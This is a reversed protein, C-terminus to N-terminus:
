SRRAAPTVAAFRTTEGRHSPPRLSESSMLAGARIARALRRIRELAAFRNTFQDVVVGNVVVSWDDRDQSAFLVHDYVEVRGCLSGTRGRSPTRHGRSQMM